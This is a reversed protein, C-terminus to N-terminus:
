GRGPPWAGETGSSLDVWDRCSSVCSSGSLLLRLLLELGVVPPGASSGGSPQLAGCTLTVGGSLNM